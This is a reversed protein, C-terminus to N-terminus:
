SFAFGTSNCDASQAWCHNLLIIYKIRKGLDTLLSRFQCPSVLYATACEELLNLVM